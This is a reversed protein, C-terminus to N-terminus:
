GARRLAHEVIGYAGVILSLLILVLALLSLAPRVGERVRAYVTARLEGRGGEFSVHVLDTLDELELFAKALPPLLLPRGRVKVEASSNGLNELKVSVNVYVLGLPLGFLRYARGQSDTLFTVERVELDRERGGAYVAILLSLLLGLFGLAVKELGQM